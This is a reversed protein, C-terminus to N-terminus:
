LGPPLLARSRLWALCATNGSFAVHRASVHSLPRLGSGEAVLEAAAWDLAEESGGEAVAAPDVAAGRRQRLVRLAALGAGNQAACSFAEDWLDGGRETVPEAVEALYLLMPEPGPCDAAIVAHEASLVAGRAALLQLIRLLRVGVERKSGYVVTQSCERLSEGVPDPTAMPGPVGCEDWLYAMAEAHGRRSVCVAARANFQFGHARLCRLRQLCDPTDTAAQVAKGCAAGDRILKDTVHPGWASLLFDLKARWCATPSRLADALIRSPWRLLAGGAASGGPAAGAAAAGEATRAPVWGRSLPEYHRQLVEVPCGHIIGQLLRLRAYARRREDDGVAAAAAAPAAADPGWLLDHDLRFRDGDGAASTTPGPAPHLEHPPPPPPPPLLLELMAVQGAAAAAQAGVLKPRYGHARQQWALIDAHGGACAGEASADDFMRREDETHANRELLQLVPLHGAEAAAKVPGWLRWDAVVGGAGLLRECGTANGAAAAATVAESTLTCGCHALAADLSAVHGSSAALCLLRERQM